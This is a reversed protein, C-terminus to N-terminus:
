AGYTKYRDSLDVADEEVITREEGGFLHRFKDLKRIDSLSLGEYEKMDQRTLLVPSACECIRRQGDQEGNNMHRCRLCQTFHRHEKLSQEMRIDIANAM